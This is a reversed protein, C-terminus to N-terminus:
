KLLYIYLHDASIGISFDVGNSHITKATTKTSKNTNMQKKFQKLVAKPDAGVASSLMSFKLIFDRAQTKNKMAKTPVVLALANVKEDKVNARLQFNKKKQLDHIGNKAQTPLQDKKAAEQAQALKPKLVAQKQQLQQAEQKLKEGAQAQKQLDAAAQQDQSQAVAKQDTAVKKQIEAQQAKLQQAQKQMSMVAKQDQASLKTLVLGQDFKQKIQSYNGLPQTKDVRVTEKQSGAKLHVTQAKEQVPIMVTYASSEPKVTKKSGNDIQYTVREQNTKGKIVVALGDAKLHHNSVSLQDQGCGTLFLAASALALVLVSIKKM